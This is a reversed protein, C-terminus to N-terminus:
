PHHFITANCLHRLYSHCLSYMVTLDHFALRIHMIAVDRFTPPPTPLREKLVPTNYFRYFLYLQFIQHRLSLDPLSFTVKMSSVNSTHHYTSLIFHVSGNQVRELSSINNIIGTDWAAAAYKPNTGVLAKYLLLTLSVPAMAFNHKLYDLMRNANNVHLRYSYEM